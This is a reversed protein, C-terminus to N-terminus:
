EFDSLAHEPLLFLRHASNDVDIAIKHLYSPIVAFHAVVPVRIHLFDIQRLSSGTLPEAARLLKPSRDALTRCRHGSKTKTLPKL